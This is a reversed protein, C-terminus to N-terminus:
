LVSIVNNGIKINKIVQVNKLPNSTSPREELEIEAQVGFYEPKMNNFLNHGDVYTSLESFGKLKATDQRYKDDLLRYGIRTKPQNTKKDTYALCSLLEAKIQTM